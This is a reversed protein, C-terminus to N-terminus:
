IEKKNMLDNLKRNCEANVKDIAVMAENFTQEGRRYKNMQIVKNHDAKTLIKDWLPHRKRVGRMRYESWKISIVEFIFRCRSIGTDKIAENMIEPDIRLFKQLLNIM